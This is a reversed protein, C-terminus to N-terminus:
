SLSLVSVAESQDLPSALGSGSGAQQQRCLTELAAGPAPRQEPKTSVAFLATLPTKSLYTEVIKDKLVTSLSQVLADMDNMRGTAQQEIWEFLSSSYVSWLSFFSYHPSSELDGGEM